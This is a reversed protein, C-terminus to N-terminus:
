LGGRAHPSTAGNGKRYDSMESTSARVINGVLDAGCLWQLVPARSLCRPTVPRRRLPVACAVTGEPPGAPRPILVRWQRRVFVDGLQKWLDRSIVLRRYQTLLTACDRSRAHCAQELCYGEGGEGKGVQARAGLGGLLGIIDNMNSPEYGKRNMRMRTSRQARTHSILEKHTHKHQGPWEAAHPDLAAAAKTQLLWTCYV